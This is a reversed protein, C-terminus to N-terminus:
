DRGDTSGQGEIWEAIFAVSEGFRSADRPRTFRLMEFHRAVRALMAFLLASDRGKAAALIAFTYHDDFLRYLREAGSLREIAPGPGDELLVLRALPLIRGSAGAPPAAYFKGIGEGVSEEQAAGTLALADPTLKLRKHGPLCHVADGGSPDIILTDDCFLPLGRRGLAAVLTSKGAGSPGSFAYVRGDHEVASAHLPILGNLCAVASHVSGGLWLAEAAPDAGAGREVTIGEGRRYHFYHEGRARLLFSDGDLLWSTEAPSQGALARPARGHTVRTEREMVALIASGVMVARCIVQARARTLPQLAGNGTRAAAQRAAEDGGHPFRLATQKDALGGPCIKL